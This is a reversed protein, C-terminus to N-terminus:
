VMEGEAFRNDKVQNKLATGKRREKYHDTSGEDM